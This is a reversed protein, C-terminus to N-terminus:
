YIGEERVITMALNKWWTKTRRAQKKEMISFNVNDLHKEKHEKSNKLM